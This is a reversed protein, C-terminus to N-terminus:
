VINQTHGNEQMSRVMAACFDSPDNPAFAPLTPPARASFKKRARTRSRPEM